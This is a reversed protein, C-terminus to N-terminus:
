MIRKFMKEIEYYTFHVIVPRGHPCTFPVDTHSLDNLLRVMEDNNLHHNAKISRKCSMLIAVEERLKYIDIKGGQIIQEVMDRITQEESGSPFWRPYSRVAYTNEGFREFYLGVNELEAMNSHIFLQEDKTFEFTLPML